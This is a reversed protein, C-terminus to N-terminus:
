IKFLKEFVLNQPSVNFVIWNTQCQAEITAPTTESGNKTKYKQLFNKFFLFSFKKPIRTFFDQFSSDYGQDVKRTKSETEQNADFEARRKQRREIAMDAVEQDAYKLMESMNPLGYSMENM